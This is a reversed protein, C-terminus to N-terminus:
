PPQIARSRLTGALENTGYHTDALADMLADWLRAENKRRWIFEWLHEDVDRATRRRIPTKRKAGCWTGETTNAHVGTVPDRFHRSHNVVRHEYENMEDLFNYGAWCDTHIISGPRVHAEIVRRLTASTRDPVSIAFVKREDTREVGGVVWVGEVRHGRHYKRKGMKTEDIEVIIGPGGILSDEEDLSDAVLRRFHAL